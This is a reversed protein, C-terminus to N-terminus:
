FHNKSFALFRQKLKDNELVFFLITRLSLICIVLIITKPFFLISILGTIAVNKISLIIIEEIEFSFLASFKFILFEQFISLILYIAIEQTSILQLNNKLFANGTFVFCLFGIIFMNFFLLFSKNHLKNKITKFSKLSNFFLVLVLPIITVLGLDRFLKVVDFSIYSTFFLKMMLIFYIPFLITSWFVLKVARQKKASDDLFIPTVIALPALLTMFAGLKITISLQFISSLTLILVPIFVYTFLLLHFDKKQFNFVEVFSIEVFFINIFMMLFVAYFAYQSAELGYYPFLFGLIIGLILFISNINIKM